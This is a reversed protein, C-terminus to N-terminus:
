AGFLFDFIREHQLEKSQFVFVGFGLETAVEREDRTLAPQSHAVFPISDIQQEEMAFEAAEDDNVQFKSLESVGVSPLHVKIQIVHALM